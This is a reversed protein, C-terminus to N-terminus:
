LHAKEPGIIVIELRALPWPFTLSLDERGGFSPHLIYGAGSARVNRLM